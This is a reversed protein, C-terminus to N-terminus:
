AGTHHGMGPRMDLEMSVEGPGWDLMKHDAIRRDLYHTSFWDIYWSSSGVTDWNELDNSGELKFRAPLDDRSTAHLSFGCSKRPQPLSLIMTAGKQEFQAGDMSGKWSPSLIANTRVRPNTELLGFDLIMPSSPTTGDQRELAIFRWHQTVCYATLAMTSPHM